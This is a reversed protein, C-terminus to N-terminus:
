NFSFIVCVRLTVGRRPYPQHPESLLVFCGVARGRAYASDGMEALGSAMPVVHVDVGRAAARELLPGESAAVLHLSHHPTYSRVATLVSLLVREAGGLTGVPNLYVIKM